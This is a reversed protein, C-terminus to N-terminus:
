IYLIDSKLDNLKTNDNKNIQKKIQNYINSNSHIRYGKVVELINKSPYISITGQENYISKTNKIEVGDLFQTKIFTEFDLERNFAENPVGGAKVFIKDD